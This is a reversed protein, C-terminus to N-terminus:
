KLNLDFRLKPEREGKFGKGYLFTEVDKLQWINEGVYM